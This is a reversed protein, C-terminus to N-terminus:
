ILCLAQYSRVIFVALKNYARVRDVPLVYKTDDEFPLRSVMQNLRVIFAVQLYDKIFHFNYIVFNHNAITYTTFIYPWTFLKALKSNTDIAGQRQTTM